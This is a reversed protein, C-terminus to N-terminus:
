ISPLATCSLKSRLETLARRVYVRCLQQKDETSFHMDGDVDIDDCAAESAQVIRQEDFPQGLLLQETRTARTANPGVGTIGVRVDACAGDLATRAIAAVGVVAFRSAPHPLKLYTAASKEPLLPIRIQTLIEGEEIATTMLGQFWDAATVTRLGNQGVLVMEANLALVSAPYDAAPDSNVVSGGITGRNRVQPDAIMGAVRSLYPLVNAVVASTEVQRHTSMAGIVLSDSEVFINRLESIGALDILHDPSALRLKLTPILSQGGAMLKAEGGLTALMQIAEVVSTPRHYNFTAPFM